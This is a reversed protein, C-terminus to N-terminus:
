QCREYFNTTAASNIVIDIERYMEERLELSMIGLNEHSIDGSVSIVKSSINSKFEEDGWKERVVRFLETDLVEEQLRQEISRKPTSRILLYLKKVNPQVRLIKEFFIKALFGSAGTIFITKGEFHQIIKNEEM